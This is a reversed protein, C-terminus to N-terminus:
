DKKNTGKALKITTLIIIVIGAILLYTWLSMYSWVNQLEIITNIILYILGVTFLGKVKKSYMDYIILLISVISAYISLTVNFELTPRALLISTGVIM